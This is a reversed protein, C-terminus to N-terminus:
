ADEGGRAVRRALASAQPGARLVDLALLKWYHAPWRALVAYCRRREAGAVSARRLAQLYDLGLRFSPFLIRNSKSPDHWIGHEARTQFSSSAQQPHSRYFFLKEPLEVFRGQLSLEALLARDWAVNTSLRPVSRLASARFVGFARPGFYHHHGLGIVERLREDPRPSAITFSGPLHEIPQGHQDIIV